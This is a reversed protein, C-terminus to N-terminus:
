NALNKWYKILRDRKEEELIGRISPSVIDKDWLQYDGTFIYKVLDSYIGFKEKVSPASICSMFLNYFQLDKGKVYKLMQKEGRWQIDRFEFYAMFVHYVDQLLKIELTELYESNDSDFYRKNTVYNINIISEWKSMETKPVGLKKELEAFKEKLSTLAGSKDFKIIGNKLWNVLIGDLSNAHITKEEALKKVLALDYFFIDAPKNDIYQFISLINETNEKLIIALDIDSYEKEEGRSQSGGILVADVEEKSKLNEIIKELM